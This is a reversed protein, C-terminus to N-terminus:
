SASIGGREVWKDYEEVVITVQDIGKNFFHWVGQEIVVYDGMDGAIRIREFERPLDKVDDTTFLTRGEPSDEDKFLIRMNTQM